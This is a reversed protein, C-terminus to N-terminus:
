VVGFNCSNKFWDSNTQIKGKIINKTLFQPNPMPLEPNTFDVGREQDVDPQFAVVM